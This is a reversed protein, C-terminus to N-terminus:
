YVVYADEKENYTYHYGNEELGQEFRIDDHKSIIDYEESGKKYVGCHSFKEIVRKYEVSRILDDIEEFAKDMVEDPCHYLEKVEDYLKCCLDNNLTKIKKITEM